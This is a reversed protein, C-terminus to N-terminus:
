TKGVDFEQCMYHHLGCRPLYNGTVDEAHIRACGITVGERNTLKKIEPPFCADCTTMFIICLM